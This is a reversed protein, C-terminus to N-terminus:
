EIQSGAQVSSLSENEQFLTSLKEFYQVAAQGLCFTWVGAVAVSILSRYEPFRARLRHSGERVALGAALM